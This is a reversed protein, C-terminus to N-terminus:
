GIIALLLQQHLYAAQLLISIAAHGLSLKKRGRENQLQVYINHKLDIYELVSEKEGM